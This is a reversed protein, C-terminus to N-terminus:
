TGKCACHVGKVHGYIPVYVDDMSHSDIPNVHPSTFVYNNDAAASEWSASPYSTQAGTIAPPVPDATNTFREYHPGKPWGMLATGFSKVSVVSLEQEAEEPTLKDVIVLKAKARAVAEQTILGGQSHAFITTPQGTRAAQVMADTLPVVAPTNSDKAINDLCEDLDKGIGETANYVGTVESCTTAAIQQMTKCIGGEVFPDKQNPDQPTYRTNIGNVYTIKPLTGPKQFCGPPMVGAPNGKKCGGGLVDGDYPKQSEDGGRTALYRVISSIGPKTLLFGADFAIGGVIWNEVTVCATVASVAVSVFASKVANFAAAVGRATAKAAAATAHAVASAARKTQELTWEAASVAKHEAAVAANAIARGSAVAFDAATRAMAKAESAMFQVAAAAGDAVAKAGTAISSAAAQAAGTTNNWASKFGDGWSM